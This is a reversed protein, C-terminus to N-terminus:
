RERRNMLWARVILAILLGVGVVILARGVPNGEEEDVVAREAARQAAVEPAVTSSTSATTTTVAGTLRLVPAPHEVEGGTAAPGESWRVAEGDSQTQIVQLVLRDRDTPLTVTVPFEQSQAPPINGRSWAVSDVAGAGEQVTSSWGPLLPASASEVAGEPFLVQVKVTDSSLSENPVRISLDITSGAAAESPSLTAHALVPSPSSAITVALATFTMAALRRHKM